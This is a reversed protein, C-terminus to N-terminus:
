VILMDVGYGLGISVGWWPGRSRVTVSTGVGVGDASLYRMSIWEAPVFKKSMRWIWPLYWCWGGSGQILPESNAPVIAARGVEEDEDGGRKRTPSRTKPAM